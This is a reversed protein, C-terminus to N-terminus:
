SFPTLCGESVKRVKEKIERNRKWKVYHGNEKFIM